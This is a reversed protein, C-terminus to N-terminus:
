LAGLELYPPRSDLAARLAEGDDWCVLYLRTTYVTARYRRAIPLLPDQAHLGLLFYDAAGGATKSLLADLLARFVTPDAGAVIPLAGILYRLPEGLM